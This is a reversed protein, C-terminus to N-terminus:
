VWEEDDMLDEETAAAGSVADEDMGAQGDAQGAEVTGDAALRVWGALQHTVLSPDAVMRPAPAPPRASALGAPVAVGAAAAAAGDREDADDGPLEDAQFRAAAQADPPRHVVQRRPLRARKTFAAADQPQQGAQQEPLQEPQQVPEPLQLEQATSSVQIAITQLHLCWGACCLVVSVKAPQPTWSCM